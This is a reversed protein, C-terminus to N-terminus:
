KKLFVAGYLNTNMAISLGMSHVYGSCCSLCNM